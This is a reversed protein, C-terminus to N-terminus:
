ETAEVAKWADLLEHIVIPEELSRSKIEKYLRGAVVPDLKCWQLKYKTAISTELAQIFDVITANTAGNLYDTSLESAEKKLRHLETREAGTQAM